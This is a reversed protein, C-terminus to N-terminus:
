ARKEDAIETDLYALAEKASAFSLVRGAKIDKEAQKLHARTRANPIEEQEVLEKAYALCAKIDEETLEPYDEFLTKVDLDFALRELITDVSIRTGHIVPKGGLVGPLRVIREKSKGQTTKMTPVNYWIVVFM